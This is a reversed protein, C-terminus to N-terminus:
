KKVLNDLVSDKIHELFADARADGSQFFDMHVDVFTGDESTNATIVIASYKRGLWTTWCHWVGIGAFIGFILILCLRLIFLSTM